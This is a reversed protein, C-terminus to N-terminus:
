QVGGQVALMEGAMGGGEISLLWDYDSARGAEVSYGRLADPVAVEQVLAAAPQKDIVASAPAAELFRALTTRVAAEGDSNVVALLRALTRAAELGGHAAVLLSWLEGYPAGLEAVLEPAVQRVAQPKRALEPLYHRYRISRQGRALRPHVEAEDRCVLRIDTVGIFATLPLGAWRSPVSYRAGDIQVTAQRSVSLLRRQRADFETAPLKRLYAQEAAFRETVSEGATNRM